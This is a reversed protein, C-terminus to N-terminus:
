ENVRFDAGLISPFEPQTTLQSLVLRETTLKNSQAVEAKPVISIIRTGYPIDSISFAASTDCVFFHLAIRRYTLNIM